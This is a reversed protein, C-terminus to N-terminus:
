DWCLTAAFDLRQGFIVLGILSVLVIGLGSGITAVFLVLGCLLARDDADAGAPHVTRAANRITGIVELVIAVFPTAYTLIPM